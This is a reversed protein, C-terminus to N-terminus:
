TTTGQELNRRTLAALTSLHQERTIRYRSLCVLSLLYLVMLIPAVVLGLQFLKQGPVAGAAAGRPFGIADLGVGALFGGLGSTAKGVFAIAAVFMGEQRRGTDLEHEDVIDAIMSAVTIGITVVITVMCLAHVFMIPLLAPAGNEPMVGVFRLFVPLPGILCGATALGLVTRKKDFRATLPRALAFALIVAIALAYVLVAIQATSFGWFYTNMYLGIVDNFGAAVAAFLAGLVLMRYSPNRLVSRAEAWLQGWSAPARPAPSRMTPILRHTGLSCTLIATFILVAGAYAFHGYAQPDFRGDAFSPSPAFFYLYGLQATLLGGMWGFLYRFSVMSTREDYDTTIEPVMSDSPIAYFTMCVRVGVAFAALWAFLGTPGLGAPPNFLLVFCVAMPLAAFYMFPHRRGWRSHFGDSISGVLPDTIADVCLALFIAAGSLTGPVGLVQNYYFLLFVNFSASKTGEAVSGIGYYLKTSLPVPSAATEATTRVPLSSLM